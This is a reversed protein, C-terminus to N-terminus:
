PLNVHLGKSVTIITERRPYTEQNNGEQIGLFIGLFLGGEFM